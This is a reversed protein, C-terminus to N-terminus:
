FWYLPLRLQLALVFIVYCALTIGATALVARVITTAPSALASVFVTVVTTPILGVVPILYAFAVIAGGVCVIARWPIRSLGETVEGGRVGGLAVSVGLGVLILGVVFPFMGAGMEDWSGLGYGFSAFAFAGGLVAFLGGAVLEGHREHLAGGSPPEQTTPVPHESSSM